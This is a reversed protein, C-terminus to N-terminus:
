SLRFKIDDNKGSLILLIKWIDFHNKRQMRIEATSVAMKEAISYCPGTGRGWALFKGWQPTIFEPTFYYFLQV